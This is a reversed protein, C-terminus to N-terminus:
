CGRPARNSPTFADIFSRAMAKADNDYGNHLHLAGCCGQRRNTLVECGNAALVRATDANIDAFLVRM